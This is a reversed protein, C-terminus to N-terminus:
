RSEDRSILASTLAAKLEARQSEYTARSADDPERAREFRADLDAIQRALREAQRDAAVASAM